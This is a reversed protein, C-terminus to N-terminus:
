FICLELVLTRRAMQAHSNPSLRRGATAVGSATFSNNLSGLRCRYDDIAYLIIHYFGRGAGLLLPNIIPTPIAKPPNINIILFYYYNNYLQFKRASRDCLKHRAEKTTPRSRADTEGMSYIESTSYRM